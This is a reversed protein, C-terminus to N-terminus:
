LGVGAWYAQGGIQSAWSHAAYNLANAQVFNRFAAPSGSLFGPQRHWDMAALVSGTTYATIGEYGMIFSGAAFGAAPSGASGPRPGPWNAPNAVAGHLGDETRGILRGTAVESEFWGDASINGINTRHSPITVSWKGGEVRQEIMRRAR